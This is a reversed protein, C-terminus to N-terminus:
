VKVKTSNEYDRMSVLMGLIDGSKPLASFSLFVSGHRRRSVSAILVLHILLGTPPFTPGVCPPHALKSTKRHAFFCSAPLLNKRLEPFKSSSACIICTFQDFLDAFLHCSRCSSSTGYDEFNSTIRLRRFINNAQSLWLGWATPYLTHLEIM